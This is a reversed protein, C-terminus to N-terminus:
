SVSKKLKRRSFSAVLQDSAWVAAPKRETATETKLEKSQEATSKCDHDRESAIPEADSFCIGVPLLCNM